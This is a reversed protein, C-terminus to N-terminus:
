GWGLLLIAGAAALIPLVPWRRPTPEPTTMIPEQATTTM